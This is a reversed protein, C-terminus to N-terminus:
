CKATWRKISDAMTMSMAREGKDSSCTKAPGIGIKGAVPM